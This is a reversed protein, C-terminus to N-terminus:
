VSHTTTTTVPTTGGTAPSAPAPAVGASGGGAAPAAPSGPATATPAPASTVPTIVVGTVGGTVEKKQVTGMTHRAKRTATRKVAAAAKIAVTPVTTKPASMGFDALVTVATKGYQGVLYSRLSVYLADVTKSVAKAAVVDSEWQKRSAESTQLATTQGQFAAKLQAPTYLTGGVTVNATIRKDIGANVNNNRVIISPQNRNNM